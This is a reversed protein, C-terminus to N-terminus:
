TGDGAGASDGDVATANGAGLATGAEGAEAVTHRELQIEGQRRVREQQLTDALSLVEDAISTLPMAVESETRQMFHLLAEEMAVQLMWWAHRIDAVNISLWWLSFVPMGRLEGSPRYTKPHWSATQQIEDRVLLGSFIPIFNGCTCGPRSGPLPTVHYRSQCGQQAHLSLDGM